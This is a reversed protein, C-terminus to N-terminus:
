LLRNKYRAFWGVFGLSAVFAVAAIIGWMFLASGQSIDFLAGGLLPGIAIGVGSGAGLLGLYRGRQDPGALKGVVSYASPVFFLEGATIIVIALVSWGYSVIWSLSLYGLGFIFSGLVLANKDGIRDNVARTIPYQFLVAVTANVTLLLGYGTTTFGLVNVTFVSYTNVIQTYVIFVLLNLFVYTLLTRDAKITFASRFDAKEKVVASTEKLSTLTLLFCSLSMFVAIAFLYAYSFSSFLYGGLLPGIVWGVNAMIQAVGYVETLQTRPTLDALIATVAPQRLGVAISGVIYIIIVFWVSVGAGVTVALAINFLMDMAFFFLLSRKRGFRDTVVGGLIQSFAYPFAALALVMGAITMTLGRTQNLYLLFFPGYVAYAFMSLFRIIITIGIGPEYHRLTLNGFLKRSKL